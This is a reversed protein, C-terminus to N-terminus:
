RGDKSAVNLASLWLEAERQTLRSRRLTEFLDRVAHREGGTIFGRKQLMQRLSEEVRAVAADPATKATPAPPPATAELMAQHWEYAYVLVAQALNLSPQEPEAHIASVDHCRWLEERTLGSREDGFVVAVPGEASRARLRQGVEQPTLRRKGELRRSSTGVVWVCDGVAEELTGATRALALVDEAHVAMKRAEEHSAADPAFPEVWVWDSLGFNKLARAAAGLNGSFRPRMLVFRVSSLQTM